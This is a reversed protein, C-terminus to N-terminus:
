VGGEGDLRQSAALLYPGQGWPYAGVLPTHEYRAPDTNIGPRYSVGQLHGSADIRHAISQWARDATTTYSEAVLGSRVAGTIACTTMATTSSEPYSDPDDVINRWSGGPSQCDRLCEMLRTFRERLETPIRDAGLADLFRFLGLVAWGNGRGWAIRPGGGHATDAYHAFLGDARQLHRCHGIVLEIATGLLKADDTTDAYRVLFEPVGYLSDVFLMSGDREPAIAGVPRSTEVIEKAMRDLLLRGAAGDVAGSDESWLADLLAVSPGMPNPPVAPDVDRVWRALESVVFRRMEPVELRGGATYLGDLGISEGWDWRYYWYAMAAYGACIMRERLPRATGRSAAMSKGLRFM